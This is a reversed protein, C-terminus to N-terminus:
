LNAFNTLLFARLDLAKKNKSAKMRALVDCTAHLPVYLCSIATKLESASIECALQLFAKFRRIKARILSEHKAETGGRQNSHLGQRQKLAAKPKTQVSSKAKNSRQKQRQKFAVKPKAQADSKNKDQCPAQGQRVNSKAKSM